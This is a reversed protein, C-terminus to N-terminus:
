KNKNLYANMVKPLRYKEKKQWKNIIRQKFKVVMVHSIGLEKGIERVTYGDLLLLFVEKERKSFGNNKIHEIVLKRDVCIDINKQKSPLMYGLTDKGEKVPEDLSFMMINEKVKRLYNLLHFQCGKIIYGDNINDPVGAKFNNWLHMCMEQYLDDADIFGSHGNHRKAMKKLIPSIRKFLKQFDITM